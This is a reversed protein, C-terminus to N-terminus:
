EGHSHLIENRVIGYGVELKLWICRGALWEGPEEDNGRQRHEPWRVKRGLSACAKKSSGSPLGKKAPVLGQLM